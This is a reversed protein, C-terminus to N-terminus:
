FPPSPLRPLRPEGKKKKKKKETLGSEFIRINFDPIYELFPNLLDSLIGSILIRIINNNGSKYYGIFLFYVPNPFGSNTVPNTSSLTIRVMNM